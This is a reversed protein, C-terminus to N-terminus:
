DGAGHVDEDIRSELWDVLPVGDDHRVDARPTPELLVPQRCAAMQPNEPELRVPLLEAPEDLARLPLPSPVGIEVDREVVPAARNIDVDRAIGSQGRHELGIALEEVRKGVGATEIGNIPAPDLGVREVMDELRVALRVEIEDLGVGLSALETYELARAPRERGGHEADFNFDFERRDVLVLRKKGVHVPEQAAQTKGQEVQPGAVPLAFGPATQAARVSLDNPAVRQIERAHGRQLRPERPEIEFVPLALDEAGERHREEVAIHIVGEVEGGRRARDPGFVFEGRDLPGEAGRALRAAAQRLERAATM